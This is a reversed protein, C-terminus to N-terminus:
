DFAKIIKYILQQKEPSQDHFIRLIEKELNYSSELHNFDFLDKESVNFAKALKELTESSPYNKGTEIKGISKYDIGISSALGEQTLNKKHRLERIRKGLLTKVNM